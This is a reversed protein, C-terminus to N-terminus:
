VKLRQHHYLLVFLSQLYQTDRPWFNSGTTFPFAVIEPTQWPFMIHVVSICTIQLM